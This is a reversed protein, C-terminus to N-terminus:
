PPLSLPGALLVARICITEDLAAELAPEADSEVASSGRRHLRRPIAFYLSRKQAVPVSSVYVLKM